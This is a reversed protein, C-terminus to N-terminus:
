SYFHDLTAVRRSAVHFRHLMLCNALWAVDKVEISYIPSLGSLVSQTLVM